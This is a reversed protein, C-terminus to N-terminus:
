GNSHVSRNPGEGRSFGLGWDVGGGRMELIVEFGARVYCFWVRSWVMGLVRAITEEIVM